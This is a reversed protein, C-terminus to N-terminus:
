TRCVNEKTQLAATETPFSIIPPLFEYFIALKAVWFWYLYKMPESLDLICYFVCITGQPAISKKIAQNHFNVNNKIFTNRVLTAKSKYIFKTCNSFAYLIDLRVSFPFLFSVLCSKRCM